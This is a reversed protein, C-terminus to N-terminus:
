GEELLVGPVTEWQWIDDKNSIYKLYIARFVMFNLKEAM